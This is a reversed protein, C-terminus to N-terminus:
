DEIPVKKVQGDGVKIYKYKKETPQAIKTPKLNILEKNTNTKKLLLEKQKNRNQEQEQKPYIMDPATAAFDFVAPLGKLSVGATEPAEKETLQASKKVKKKKFFNKADDIVPM